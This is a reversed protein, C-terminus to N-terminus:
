WRPIATPARTTRPATTTLRLDLAVGSAGGRGLPSLDAREQAGPSPALAATVFSMLGTVGAREGVPLPLGGLERHAAAEGERDRAIEVSRGSAIGVVPAHDGLELAEAPARVDDLEPCFKGTRACGGARRRPHAEVGHRPAAADDDVSQREAHKGLLRRGQALTMPQHRQHMM